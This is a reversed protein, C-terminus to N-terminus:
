AADEVTQHNEKALCIFNILKDEAILLEDLPNEGALDVEQKYLMESSNKEYAYILVQHDMPSYRCYIFILERNTISMEILTNFIALIKDM